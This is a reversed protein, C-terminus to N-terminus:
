IWEKPRKQAGKPWGATRQRSFPCNKKVDPSARPSFPVIICTQASLHSRVPGAPHSTGRSIARCPPGDGASPGAPHATGPQHGPGGLSSLEVRPAARRCPYGNAASVARSGTICVGSLYPILAGVISQRCLHRTCVLRRCVYEM